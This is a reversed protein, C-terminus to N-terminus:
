SHQLVAQSESTQPKLINGFSFESFIHLKKRFLLCYKPFFYMESPLMALIM